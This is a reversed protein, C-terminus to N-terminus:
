IAVHYERVKLREVHRLLIGAGLFWTNIINIAIGFVLVATLVNLEHASTLINLSLLLVIMLVNMTLGTDMSRSVQEKPEGGARKLIRWALLMNTNVVYGILMTIGIISALDLSVRLLAMYGLVGLIDLGLVLLITVPVIRRRFILISLVGIGVFAGIISFLAQRSQHGRITPGMTGITVRDTPIGFQSSLMGKVNNESAGDLADTEIHLGNELLVVEADTGLLGEVASEVSSASPVNELGRVMVLSGGKFDRSLPVGLVLFPVLLLVSIALPIAVRQRGRLQWYQLALKM